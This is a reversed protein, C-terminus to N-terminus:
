GRIISTKFWKEQFHIASLIEKDSLIAGEPLVVLKDDDDDERHAIAVCVGEKEEFPENSELYYADLDEGDPAKVGKIYGYNVEYKFGHKPHISGVPRDITVMVKKGLFNKAIEFSTKQRM